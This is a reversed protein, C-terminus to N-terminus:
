RIIETSGDARYILREDPRGDGDTDFAVSSLAGSAAFTEWKDMRGDADTDEEARVLAGSEYFERRAIVTSLPGSEPAAPRNAKDKVATAPDIVTPAAFSSRADSPGAPPRSPGPEASSSAGAPRAALEVRAVTGEADPYAWADVRGDDARSWGVRELAQEPTYYEWREIRGDEDRDIEIRVVLAADMWAWTDIRGNSNSDYTLLELKGDTRSYHGQIQRNGEIFPDKPPPQEEPAQSCAALATAVLAAALALISLRRPFGPQNVVRPNYFLMM